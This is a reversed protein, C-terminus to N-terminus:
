DPTYGLFDEHGRFINIVLERFPPKPKAEPQRVPSTNKVIPREVEPAICTTAM